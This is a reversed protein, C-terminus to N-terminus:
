NQFGNIVLVKLGLLYFMVVWKVGLIGGEEQKWRKKMEDIDNEWLCNKMQMGVSKLCFERGKCDDDVNVIGRNENEILKCIMKMEILRIMIM